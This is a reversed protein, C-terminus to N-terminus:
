TNLHDGEFWFASSNIVILKVSDVWLKKKGKKKLFHFCSATSLSNVVLKIENELSKAGYSKM